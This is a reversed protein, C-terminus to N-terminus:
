LRALAAGVGEGLLGLDIETEESDKDFPDGVLLVYAVADDKHIPAAIVSTSALAAAISADDDSPAAEAFPDPSGDVIRREECTTAVISPEDLAVVFTKITAPRLKAGHGRVGVARRDRIEVLLSSTWRKSVYEMVTDLLWGIEDIDRCAALTTDLADRPAAGSPKAATKFEVPLAKSTSVPKPPPPPPLEVDISFDLDPAPEPDEIDVHVDLEGSTGRPYTSRVLREVWTGPAVAMAFAGPVARALEAGVKESPDRVCIILRGDGIRGLPLAVLARAVRAPLLKTAERDRHEIHRRLASAVGLQKGLARAGDDFDVDGRAVLFSVLRVGAALHDELALALPEWEVWKHKLLIEGIRM